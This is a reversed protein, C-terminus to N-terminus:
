DFQRCRDWKNIYLLFRLFIIFLFSLFLFLIISFFYNQAILIAFPLLCILHATKNVHYVKFITNKWWCVQIIHLYYTCQKSQKNAIQFILQHKRLVYTSKWCWVNERICYKRWTQQLLDLSPISCNDTQKAYVQAILNNELPLFTLNVLM